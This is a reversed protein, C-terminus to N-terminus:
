HKNACVEVSSDLAYETITASCQINGGRVYGVAINLTGVSAIESIESQPTTSDGMLTQAFEVANNHNKM